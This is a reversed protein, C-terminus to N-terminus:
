EHNIVQESRMRESENLMQRVTKVKITENIENNGYNNILEVLNNAFEILSKADFTSKIHGIRLLIPDREGCNWKESDVLCLSHKECEPIELLMVKKPFYGQM